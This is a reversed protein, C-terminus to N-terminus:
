TLDVLKVSFMVMILNLIFAVYSCNHSVRFGLPGTSLEDVRPISIFVMIDRYGRQITGNSPDM